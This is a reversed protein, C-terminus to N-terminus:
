CQIKNKLIETNDFSIQVPKIYLWNHITVAAEQTYPYPKARKNWYRLVQPGNLELSQSIVLIFFNLNRYMFVPLHDLILINTM